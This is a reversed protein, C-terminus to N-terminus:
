KKKTGGPKAEHYGAALADAESMYKGEKTQGYWRDGERHFVKTSTNVWVMGRAPPAVAPATTTARPAAPAAAPAAPAPAPATAVPATAVPATAPASAPAPATRGTAAGGTTVQDRIKAITAAPVGAKTLDDVSAYPRGALIKKATAPGVGNQEELEKATATNLNVPGSAVPAASGASSRAAKPARSESAAPAPAAPAAVTVQDRIKAITAAPVGAKTLDDVSTYPRGAVIKKATAPGVGNLEELEKATATNLDVKQAKGAALLWPTAVASALLAAALLVARRTQM